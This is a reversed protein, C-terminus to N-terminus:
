TLEDRRCVQEIHSPGGVLKIVFDWEQIVCDRVIEVEKGAWSTEAETTMTATDGVRLEWRVGM